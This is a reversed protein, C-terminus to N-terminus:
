RNCSECVLLANQFVWQMINLSYLPIYIPTIAPLVELLDRHWWRSTRVYGGGGWVCVCTGIVITLYQWFHLRLTVCSIALYPSRGKAHATWYPIPLSHMIIVLLPLHCRPHCTTDVRGSLVRGNVAAASIRSYLNPNGGGGWFFSILYTFYSSPFEMDNNYKLLPCKLISLRPRVIIYIAKYINLGPHCSLSPEFCSYM